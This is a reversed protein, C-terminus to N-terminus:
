RLISMSNTRSRAWAVCVAMDYVRDNAEGLAEAILGDRFADLVLGGQLDKAM